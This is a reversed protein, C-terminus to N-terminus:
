GVNDLFAFESAKKGFIDGLDQANFKETKDKMEQVSAFGLSHVLKRNNIETQLEEKNESKVRRLAFWDSIAHPNSKIARCVDFVVGVTALAFMAASLPSSLSMVGMSLITAYDGLDEMIGFGSGVGLHHMAIELALTVAMIAFPLASLTVATMAVGAVVAMVFGAVRCGLSGTKILQKFADAIIASTGVSKLFQLRMKNKDLEPGEEANKILGEVRKVERYHPVMKDRILLVASRLNSYVVLAIQASTLGTGIRSALGMGRFGKVGEVAKNSIKLLQYGGKKLGFKAAGVMEQLTKFVRAHKLEKLETKLEETEKGELIKTEILKIKKQTMVLDFARGSLSLVSDVDEGIHNMSEGFEKSFSHGGLIMGGKAAITKGFNILVVSAYLVIRRIVGVKDEIKKNIDILKNSNIAEM